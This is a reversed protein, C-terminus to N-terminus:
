SAAKGMKMEIYKDIEAQNDAGGTAGKIVKKLEEYDLLYQDGCDGGVDSQIFHQGGNLYKPNVKVRGKSAKNKLYLNVKQYGPADPLHRNAQALSTSGPKFTQILQDRHTAM